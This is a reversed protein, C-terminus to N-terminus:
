DEEMSNRGEEYIFSTWVPELLTKASYLKQVADESLDREDAGTELEHYVKEISALMLKLEKWDEVRVLKRCVFHLVGLVTDLNKSQLANLSGTLLTLGVSDLIKTNASLLKSMMEVLCKFALFDNPHQVREVEEDSGTSKLECLEIRALIHFWSPVHSTPIESSDSSFGEDRTEQLLSHSGLALALDPVWPQVVTSFRTACGHGLFEEVATVLNFLENVLNYAGRQLSLVEGSTKLVVNLLKAGYTFLSKLCIILDKPDDEGRQLLAASLERLNKIIFRLNETTFNLCREQYRPLLDMATADVIFKLVSTLGKVTNVDIQRTLSTGICFQFVIVFKVAVESIM